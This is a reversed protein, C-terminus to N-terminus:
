TAHGQTQTTGDDSLAQTTNVTADDDAYTKLQSGTVTAKKFFRRYLAVLIKPFTTQGALGGPDSISIADLGSPQLLVRGSGDLAITGGPTNALAGASFVSTSTNVFASAILSVLIKGPSGNVTFDSSTTDTWAATVIQAATPRTAATVVNLPAPEVDDVAAATARVLLPGLTATDTTSLDVYYWGNSIETANTAGASPNAFAGGNKSIVVALTKGTAPSIHDSSLYAKLPVRFAVSQVIDSM